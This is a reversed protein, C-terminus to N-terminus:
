LYEDPNFGRWDIRAKYEEDTKPELGESADVFRFVAVAAKVFEDIREPTKYTEMNHRATRAADVLREAEDLETDVREMAPNNIPDWRPRAAEYAAPSTAYPGEISNGEVIFWGYRKGEEDQGRWEIEIQVASGDIAHRKVHQGARSKAHQNPTWGPAEADKTQPEALPNDDYWRRYQEMAAETAYKLLFENQGLKEFETRVPKYRPGTKIAQVTRYHVGFYAAIRRWSEGKTFLALAFCRQEHTMKSDFKSEDVPIVTGRSERTIDIKM